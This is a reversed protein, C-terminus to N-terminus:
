PAKAVDVITGARRVVIRVNELRMRFPRGPIGQFRLKRCILLLRGNRGFAFGRPFPVIGAPLSMSAPRALGSQFLWSRVRAARRCGNASERFGGSALLREGTLWASDESALFVAIPAFDSPQGIRGLTTHALAAKEFDSGIFGGSHTGETEVIDPRVTNVRVKKPGLERALVVTVADIAAKTGSYVASNPPTIRSAVSGIKIVSGGERLYKLAAQTALLLGLV